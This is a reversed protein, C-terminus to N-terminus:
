RESKRKIRWESEELFTKGKRAKIIRDGEKNM